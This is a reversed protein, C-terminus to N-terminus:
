NAQGSHASLLRAEIRRLRFSPAAALSTASPCAHRRGRLHLCAVKEIMEETFGYERMGQAAEKPSVGRLVRRSHERFAENALSATYAKYHSAAAAQMKKIRSSNASAM